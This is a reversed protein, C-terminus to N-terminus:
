KRPKARRTPAAALPDDPWEHKPYRGRLDKRVAFYSSRWFGALDRTVQVPRHAPSLLHLTLPVAGGVVAPTRALGFMEQLRVALVPSSPVAYNIPLRSGTPVVFHTPALVDLDRRQEWSLQRALLSALPLREVDARRRVSALSPRLWVDMSAVLAEDGWDPWAPNITRLFGVRQRLITAEDDWELALGDGRTIADLIADALLDPSVERLASEKLILAGLRERRVAVVAGGVADWQVVTQSEIDDGFVAEIDVRSVPAALYIHSDPSRGDLEAVALFASDTLSGADALVAGTGNRLLFRDVDAGRRQALRDPYALMLLQGTAEEVIDEAEDVRLHRRLAMSQDRVRRVVDRDIDSRHLGGASALVSVRSRLDSDRILADRRFLDREGLLSAVVCATAGLGHSHGGLLMHALRPHVALAAMARGHPTIGLNADLAGLQGLLQRAQSLAAAPPADIWRLTGADRIGASALDLAMPALDADLVEPRSGETLHADEESAWLRYCVGTATRGARGARQDASSRSERVTDLRTMGTRSSFRPVRSLGGDVVVRVGDITLSTEAISTALVVKRLGASPRALAADQATSSLDGFLPLVRVHSPLEAGELLRHCRRIEGAGPLFALVDGDDVALAHRVASAVAEEVRMEQRNPRHRVEVYFRRGECSVIPANGLLAAVALVDLTASMVLVRLDPRLVEQSELTLALGLDAQVSREHFEDFLVAGFSELASDDLIMRTLVGETVVEIRTTSGVRSEGRVRFGVTAGVPEGLMMAMRRAAARAAIRRPELILIRKNRLWPEDLLALPVGTTKGAGPPAVLVVAPSSVLLERLRPLVQEIPLGADPGGGLRM